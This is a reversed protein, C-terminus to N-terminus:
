TFPYAIVSESTFPVLASYKVSQILCTRNGPGEYQVPIEEAITRTTSHM